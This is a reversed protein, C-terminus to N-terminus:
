FRRALSHIADVAIWMKSSCSDEILKEMFSIAEEDTLDLQMRNRLGQLASELNQTEDLDPLGCGEMLRVLSLLHRVNEPRRLTLFVASTLSLFQCFNDSKWGGMGNVMDETIRMPLYRKPDNGLIFSYDCHFFHGTPHLLLNDLHRDGVGLLFSCVTYGACSKVYTDMIERKIKYPCDPDYAFSRLFDQIPNSRSNSSQERQPERSGTDIRSLSEYKTLGARAVSSLTCYDEDLRGAISHEVKADQKGQEKKGLISDVFPQCIESLPVSGQVWEIFGRRRGVPICRFTLMKMNLGCYRLIRDCSKMFEIAFMEQRVDDDHKYLLSHKMGGGSELIKTTIRFEIDIPEFLNSASEVLDGREDFEKLAESPVVTAIYNIRGKSPRAASKRGITDEWFPTLDVWSYGCEEQYSQRGTTTDVSTIQENGINDLKVESLRLSLTLPPGWTSRSDFVLINGTDWVHHNSDRDIGISRESEAVSGAVSGHVSFGRPFLQGGNESRSGRMEILEVITRYVREEGFISNPARMQITSNNSNEISCQETHKDEFGTKQSTQCDFTLLLPFHASPLIYCGNTDISLLAPSSPDVPNLLPFLSEEQNCRKLRDRMAHTVQALATEKSPTWPQLAWRAFKQSFSQMLSKEIDLCVMELEELFLLTNDFLEDKSSLPLTEHITTYVPIETKSKIPVSEGLSQERAWPLTNSHFRSSSFAEVENSIYKQQPDRSMKKNGVPAATSPLQRRSRSKKKKRFIQFLGRAPLKSSSLQKTETLLSASKAEITMSAPLTTSVSLVVHSDSEAIGIGSGNFPTKSNSAPLNDRAFTAITGCDVAYVSGNKDKQRLRQQRRHERLNHLSRKLDENELAGALFEMPHALSLTDKVFELLDQTLNLPKNGNRTLWAMWFLLFTSVASAQLEKNGLRRWTDFLHDRGPIGISLEKENYDVLHYKVLYVLSQQADWHELISSELSPCPRYVRREMHSVSTSSLSSSHGQSEDIHNPLSPRESNIRSNRRLLPISEGNAVRAALQSLSSTPSVYGVSSTPQLIQRPGSLLPHFKIQVGDFRSLLRPKHQNPNENKEEKSATYTGHNQKANVIADQQREWQGSRAASPPFCLQLQITQQKSSLENLAAAATSINDLDYISQAGNISAVISAPRIGAVAARGSHVKKVLCFSGCPAWDIGYPPNSLLIVSYCRGRLIFTMSIPERVMMSLAASSSPYQGLTNGMQNSSLSLASRRLDSVMLDRAGSVGHGEYQWIRELAAKSPEALLNINNISVLVSNPQIGACWAESGPLVERVYLGLTLRSLTIGLKRGGATPYPSPDACDSEKKEDAGNTTEENAANPPLEVTYATFSSIKALGVGKWPNLRGGNEDNAQAEKRPFGKGFVAQIWERRVDDRFTTLELPSTSPLLAPPPAVSLNDDDVANEDDARHRFVERSDSTELQGRDMQSREQQHATEQHETPAYCNWVAEQFPLAAEHPLEPFCDSLRRPDAGDGEQPAGLTGSDASSSQRRDSHYKRYALYAAGAIM